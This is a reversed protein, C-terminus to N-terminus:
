ESEVPNFDMVSEIDSADGAIQPVTDISQKAIGPDADGKGLAINVQNSDIWQFDLHDSIGLWFLFCGFRFCRRWVM